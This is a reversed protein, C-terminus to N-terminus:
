MKGELIIEGFRFNLVVSDIKLKLGRYQQTLDLIPIMGMAQRELIFNVRCRYSYNLTNWFPVKYFRLIKM